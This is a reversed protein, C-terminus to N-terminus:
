GVFVTCNERANKPTVKDSQRFMTVEPFVLGAEWLVSGM